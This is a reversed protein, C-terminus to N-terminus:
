RKEEEVVREAEAFPCSEAHKGTHKYEGKGGRPGPVQEWGEGCWICLGQEYDFPNIAVLRELLTM